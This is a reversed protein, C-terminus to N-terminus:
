FTNFLHDGIKMFNQLNIINSNDPELSTIKTTESDTNKIINNESDIKM